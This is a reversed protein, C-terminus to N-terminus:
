WILVWKPDFPSRMCGGLVVDGRAAAAALESNPVGMKVPVFRPSGPGIRFSIDVPIAITFCSLAFTGLLLMGNPKKPRGALVTAAGLLVLVPLMKPVELPLLVAVFILTASLLLSRAM